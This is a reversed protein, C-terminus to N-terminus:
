PRGNKLPKRGQSEAGQYLREYAAVMRAVSFQSVEARAAAGLACARAPNAVISLVASALANPDGPPVLFGTRGAAVLEAVDGVATAVVPLGAAMAEMLANPRADSKSPLVFVGANRLLDSVDSRSGLVEFSRGLGRRHAEAEIDLRLPGDGVITFVVDPRSALVHPVADLLVDHGKERRLNAVVIVRPAGAAACVPRDALDIGNPITTIADPAVGERALIRGAANSNTVVRHALSYTLRELRRLAPQHALNALCRRSAVRLRVRALAAGTIGFVNAYLGATHVVSLEHRRCWAAFRLLEAATGPYRFSVLPFETVALQARARASLPGEAAFCAMRVRFRKPDLRTALELMQGETGGADFSAIFLGVNM